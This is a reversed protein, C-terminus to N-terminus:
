TQPLIQTSKCKIDGNDGNNGTLDFVKIKNDTDSNNNDNNNNQTTNTQAGSDSVNGGIVNEFQKYQSNNSKIKM